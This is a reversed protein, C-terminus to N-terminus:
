LPSPPLTGQSLPTSLPCAKPLFVPWFNVAVSSTQPLFVWIFESYSCPFSCLFRLLYVGRIEEKSGTECFIQFPSLLPGPKRGYTVPCVPFLFPCLLVWSSLEPLESDLLCTPRGTPSPWSDPRGSFDVRAQPHPTLLWCRPSHASQSMFYVLSHVRTFGILTHLPFSARLPCVETWESIVFSRLLMVSAMRHLLVEAPCPLCTVMVAVKVKYVSLMLM